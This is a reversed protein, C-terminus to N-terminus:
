RIVVAVNKQQICTVTVTNINSPGSAHLEGEVPKETDNSQIQRPNPQLSPVTMSTSHVTTAPSPQLLRFNPTLNCEDVSSQETTSFRQIPRHFYIYVTFQCM